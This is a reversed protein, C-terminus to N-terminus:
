RIIWHEINNLFVVWERMYIQYINHFHKIRQQYDCNKFAKPWQPERPVVSDFITVTWLLLWNFSIPSLGILWSMRQGTIELVLLTQIGKQHRHPILRFYNFLHKNSWYFVNDTNGTNLLLSYLFLVYRIYHLMRGHDLDIKWISVISFIFIFQFVFLDDNSIVIFMLKSLNNQAGIHEHIKRQFGENYSAPLKHKGTINNYLCDNSETNNVPVVKDILILAHPYVNKKVCIQVFKGTWLHVTGRIFEGM